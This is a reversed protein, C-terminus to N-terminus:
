FAEWVSHGDKDYGTQEGAGLIEGTKQDITVTALNGNPSIGSVIIALKFKTDSANGSVIVDGINFHYGVLWDAPKEPDGPKLGKEEIAIRVADDSDIMIDGINYKGKQFYIFEDYNSADDGHIDVINKDVITYTIWKSGDINGISAYWVRRRGDQGSYHSPDDAYDTSNIRVFLPESIFDKANDLGIIAAEKATIEITKIAESSAISGHKSKVDNNMVVLSIIIVFFSIIFIVLVKKLM